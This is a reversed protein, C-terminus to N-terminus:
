ESHKSNNNKDKKNTKIYPNLNNGTYFLYNVNPNNEYIMEFIDVGTLIINSGDITISGGLTIDLIAWKIKLNPIKEELLNYSFVAYQGSITLINVKNYDIVGIKNFYDMDDKLFSIMGEHDDVILITDKNFDIDDVNIAYNCYITPNGKKSCHEKLLCEDCNKILKTEKEEFLSEATLADKEEEKKFLNKILELM